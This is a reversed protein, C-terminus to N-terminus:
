RRDGGCTSHMLAAHSLDSRPLWVGNCAALRNTQGSWASRFGFISLQMRERRERVENGHAHDISDNVFSRSLSGPITNKVTFVFLILSSAVPHKGGCIAQAQMQQFTPGNGSM